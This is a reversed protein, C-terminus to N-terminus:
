TSILQVAYYVSLGRNVPVPVAVGDDGDDDGEIDM